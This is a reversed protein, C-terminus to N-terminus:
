FLVERQSQRHRKFIDEERPTTRNENGYTKSRNIVNIAKQTKKDIKTGLFLEGDPAVYDYLENVYKWVQIQDEKFTITQSQIGDIDLDQNNEENEQAGRICGLPETVRHRKVTRMIEDYAKADYYGRTVPKAIYKFVELLSKKTNTVRRIDQGKRKAKKFQNLWLKVLLESNEKGQVIFHFHPNFGTKWSFTCEFTRYGNIKTKYTKALNKKIRTLSNFMDKVNEELGGLDKVNVDTLTVLYLDEMELIRSGYKILKKASNIRNCVTCCKKTCYNSTVKNGNQFLYENCMYAQKYDENIESQLGFLKYMVAKTLAKASRKKEYSEKSKNVQLLRSNGITDLSCESISHKLSNM